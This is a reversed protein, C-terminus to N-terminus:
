ARTVSRGATYYMWDSGTWNTAAAISRNHRLVSDVSSNYTLVLPLYGTLNFVPAVFVLVSNDSGQLTANPFCAAVTGDCPDVTRGSQLVHFRHRHLLQPGDVDVSWRAVGHGPSGGGSGGGGDASGVGSVVAASSVLSMGSDTVASILWVSFNLSRGAVYVSLVRDLWVGTLYVTSQASQM